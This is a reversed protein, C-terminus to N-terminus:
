RERRAERRIRGSTQPTARDDQVTPRYLGHGGKLSWREADPMKYCDREAKRGCISPLNAPQSNAREIELRVRWFWRDTGGTAARIHFRPFGGNLRSQGRQINRQGCSQNNSSGKGRVVEFGDM